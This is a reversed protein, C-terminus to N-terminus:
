GGQRHLERLSESWYKGLLSLSRLGEQTGPDRAVKLLGGIGGKAPPATALDRSMAALADGFSMLLYQVEPRDLVQLLRMLGQNRTLRDLLTMGESFTGALRAVIEDSMADKASAVFNITEVLSNITAEDLMPPLEPPLKPTENAKM